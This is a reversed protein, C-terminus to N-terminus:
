AKSELHSGRRPRKARREYMTEQEAKFSDFDPGCEGKANCEMWCRWYRTSLSEDSHVAAMGAVAEQFLPAAATHDGLQCLTQACNGAVTLTHPHENGLVRRGRQLVDMYIPLALQYNGMTGHCSALNNRSMLLDVYDADLVRSHVEVAEQYLPLALKYNGMSDYTSALSSINACLFELLWQLSQVSGEDALHLRRAMAVIETRLALAAAYDQLENLAEALVAMARLTYPHEDGYVRRHAVLNTRGLKLAEIPADNAYLAAVLSSGANLSEDGEPRDLALRWRERCLQLQLNGTWGQKCTPCVHWVAENAQAAKVACEAHVWGSGSRCACGGRLLEGNSAGELCIYCSAGGTSPTSADDSAAAAAGGAGAVAACVRQSIAGAAVRHQRSKSPM